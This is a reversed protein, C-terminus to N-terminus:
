STGRLARLRRISRRLRRRAARQERERYLVASASGIHSAILLVGLSVALM